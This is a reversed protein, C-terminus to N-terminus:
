KFINSCNKVFRYYKTSANSNKAAAWWFRLALQEQCSWSTASSRSSTSRAGIMIEIQPNSLIGAPVTVVNMRKVGVLVAELKRRQGQEISLYHNFHVGIRVVQRLSDRLVRDVEDLSDRPIVCAASYRLM